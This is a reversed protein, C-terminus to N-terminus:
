PSSAEGLVREISLDLWDRAGALLSEIQTPSLALAQRLERQTISWVRERAAALWRAATVRHVRYLAGLDDITLGDLIHQRLLNRERVSLSEIAAAFASKIEQASEARVLAMEPDQSAVLRGWLVEDEVPVERREARRSSLAERVAVVRLWTLLSGRGGYDALRPIAGDRAVLLKERVRQLVDDASSAGAVSTVLARLAAGHRRELEEAAGPTAAVCAAALVIEESLRGLAACPDGDGLEACSGIHEALRGPELVLGPFAAQGRAALEGLARDLAVPDKVASAIEAPAAALFRSALEKAL